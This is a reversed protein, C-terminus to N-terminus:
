LKEDQGKFFVVWIKRSIMKQHIPFTWFWLVSFTFNDFSCKEMSKLCNWSINTLWIIQWFNIECLIQNSSFKWVTNSFRLRKMERLIQPLFSRSKMSKLRNWSINALWIIKDFISKVYFRIQLFNGSQTRFDFDKWKVYFRQCVFEKSELSKFRNWLIITM